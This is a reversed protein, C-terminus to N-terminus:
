PQCYAVLEIIRGGSVKASLGCVDGESSYGILDHTARHARAGPGYASTLAGEAMGPCVGAPTCFKPNRSTISEATGHQESGGFDIRMDQYELVIDSVGEHEIRAKPPGLVERAHAPTDGLRVGGLMLQSRDVEYGGTTPSTTGLVAFVVLLALM